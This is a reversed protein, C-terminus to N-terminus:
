LIKVLVNNQLYLDNSNIKLHDDALILINLDILEKIKPYIDMINKNFSSSHRELSINVYNKGKQFNMYNLHNVDDWGEAVLKYSSPVNFGYGRM